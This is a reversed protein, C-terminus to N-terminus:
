RRESSSAAAIRNNRPVALVGVSLPLRIPILRVKVQLAAAGARVAWGLDLKKREREAPKSQTEHQTIGLRYILVFSLFNKEEEMEFNNYM